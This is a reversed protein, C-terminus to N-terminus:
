TGGRRNSWPLLVSSAHSKENKSSGMAVIQKNARAFGLTKVNTFLKLMHIQIATPDSTGLVSLLEDDSIFFFRPFANRKTNLYDSLSKQCKDLKDLLEELTELRKNVHCAKIVNAEKSTDNMIGKFEKDVNDFKKAEEPLQQRIDESVFISELYKWRSQVKFWVEMVESVHNLKKDWGRIVDMYELAFRSGGM